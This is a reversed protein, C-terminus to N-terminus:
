IYYGIALDGIDHSRSHNPFHQHLQVNLKEDKIALFTTSHFQIDHRSLDAPLQDTYLTYSFSSASQQPQFVLNSLSGFRRTYTLTDRFQDFDNM